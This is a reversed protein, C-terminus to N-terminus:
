VYSNTIQLMNYEFIGSISCFLSPDRERGSFLAPVANGRMGGREQGVVGTTKILTPTSTQQFTQMSRFLQSPRNSILNFVYTGLTGTFLKLKCHHASLFSKATRNM